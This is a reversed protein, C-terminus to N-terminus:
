QKLRRTLTPAQKTLIRQWFSANGTGGSTQTCRERLLEWTRKAPICHRLIHEITETDGTCPQGYTCHHDPQRDEYHLNLQGMYMRACFWVNYQTMVGQSGWEEDPRADMLQAHWSSNRATQELKTTSITTTEKGTGEPDGAENPMLGNREPTAVPSLPDESSGRLVRKTGQRRSRRESTGRNGGGYGMHVPQRNTEGDLGGIPTIHHGRPQSHAV